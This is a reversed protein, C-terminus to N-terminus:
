VEPAPLRVADKQQGLLRETFELRGEVETLRREVGELEDLRRRMDELEAPQQESIRRIRQLLVIGVWVGGTIAGTLLAWVITAPM